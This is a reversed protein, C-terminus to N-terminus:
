GGSPVKAELPKYRNRLPESYSVLAIAGVVDGTKMGEHCSLCEEKSLSIPRIWAKYTSSKLAIEKAQEGRAVAQEFAEEVSEITEPEVFTDVGYARIEAENLPKGRAGIAVLGLNSNIHGHLRGGHTISIGMRTFGFLPRVRRVVQSGDPRSLKEIGKTLDLDNLAAIITGYVRNAEETAEEDFPSTTVQAAQQPDIEFPSLDFADPPAGQSASEEVAYRQCGYLAVAVLALASLTFTAISRM